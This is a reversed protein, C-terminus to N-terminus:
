DNSRTVESLQSSPPYALPSSSTTSSPPIWRSDSSSASLLELPPLRLTSLLFSHSLSSSLSLISSYSLLPLERATCSAAHSELYRPVQSFSCFKRFCSTLISLCTSVRDQCSHTYSVSSHQMTM